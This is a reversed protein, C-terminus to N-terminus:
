IKIITSGLSFGSGFGCLLVKNNKKIINNDICSKLAISIAPSSTNGIKLLDLYFKNEKIGLKKRLYDLIYKSTQHFIFYDIENLNLNNKKLTEEVMKPVEYYMFSFVNGGNMYLYNDTTKNESEEYSIIPSNPNYRNRMAGNKVIADNKGSGDTGFSFKYIFNEKTKEIIVASAADGFITRNGIDLHHVYKSMTEAMVLMVNNAIGGYILGKAVSLGYIFSACGLTIDFAGVKKSLNLKKQLLCASTPLYYDAGKTCLIVFDIKNKDYNLFLKECAKVALDLATENKKAVRRERIGVKKEINEATWSSHLKALEENTVIKEPLFYEIKSIKVGM